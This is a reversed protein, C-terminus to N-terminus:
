GNAPFSRTLQQQMQTLKSQAREMAMFGAELQSRRQALYRDLKAIQENLTENAKTLKVVKDALLGGTGTTGVFSDLRALFKTAVGGPLAGDVAKNFFTVVDTASAALATDLKTADKTEIRSSTGSFDFGLTSLNVVSGATPAGFAERRLDRLWDQIERNGALVAASSKGGTTTIATKSEIFDAVANYSSVFANIQSKLGTADAAVTVTETHASGDANLSLGSLSLGAIGHDSFNLTNDASTFALGNVTFAASTGAVNTTPATLGLGAAADGSIDITAAGTARSTLVFKGAASSYIATVGAASANIATAISALTQGATVAIATGNVTLTGDATPASATSGTLRGATAKSTLTVEYTGLPTASSVGASWTANTAEFSVSRGKGLDTSSLTAAATRLASLKGGLDGLETKQADNKTQEAQFRKAPAREIDMVSDTFTKWDFGSALGSLQIGAM